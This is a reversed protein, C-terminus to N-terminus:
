GAANQWSDAVFCWGRTLQPGHSRGQPESCSDKFCVVSGPASSQMAGWFLLLEGSALLSSLGVIELKRRLCLLTEWTRATIVMRQSRKAYAPLTEVNFGAICFLFCSDCWSNIRDAVGEEANKWPSWIACSLFGRARHRNVGCGCCCYRLAPIFGLVAPPEDCM